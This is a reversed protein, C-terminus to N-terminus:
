SQSVVVPPNILREYPMLHPGDEDVEGLQLTDFTPTQATASEDSQEQDTQAEVLPPNEDVIHVNMMELLAANSYTLRVQLDSGHNSYWYPAMSPTNWADYQAFDISKGSVMASGTGRICFDIQTSNHRIAQTQEGPKLVSLSVRIGPALGRSSDSAQPHVILSTRRGNAPAPLNALQEIETDIDEKPILVAPWLQLSPALSNSCDIFHAKPESM